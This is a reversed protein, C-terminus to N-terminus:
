WLRESAEPSPLRFPRKGESFTDLTETCSFLSALRHWDIGIKGNLFVKGWRPAREAEHLLLTGLVKGLSRRYGQTSSRGWLRATASLKERALEEATKWNKAISKAQSEVQAEGRSAPHHVVTSATQGKGLEALLPMNQMFKANFSNEGETWTWLWRAIRPELPRFGKRWADLWWPATRCTWPLDGCASHEFLRKSTLRESGITEIACSDGDFTSM